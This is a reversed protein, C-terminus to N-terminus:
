AYVPFVDTFTVAQVNSLQYVAIHIDENLTGYKVDDVSAKM